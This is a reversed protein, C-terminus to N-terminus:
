SERGRVLAVIMRAFVGFLAFSFYGALYLLLFCGIFTWFGSTAYRLIEM